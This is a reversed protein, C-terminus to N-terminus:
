KQCYSKKIRDEKIFSQKIVCLSSCSKCEWDSCLAGLAGLYGDHNLFISKVNPARFKIV